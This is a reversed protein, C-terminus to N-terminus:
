GPRAILQGLRADLAAYDVDRRAAPLVTALRIHSAAIVNGEALPQRPQMALLSGTVLLAGLGLGIKQMNNLSRM